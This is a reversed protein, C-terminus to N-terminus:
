LKQCTQTTADMPFVGFNTQTSADQVVKLGIQTSADAKRVAMRTTVEDHVHDADSHNTMMSDSTGQLIGTQKSQM